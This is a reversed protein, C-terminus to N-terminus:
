IIEKTSNKINITELRDMSSYLHEGNDEFIRDEQTELRDM